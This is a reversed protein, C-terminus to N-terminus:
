VLENVDEIAIKALLDGRQELLEKIKDNSSWVSHCIRYLQEVDINNIDVSYNIGIVELFGAIKPDYEIAVFPVNNLVSFILSHLRVGLLFDLEKYISLVQLPTEVESLIIDAKYNDENWRSIVKEKLKKSIAKDQNVHFPIIIINADIEAAFKSLSEAFNDIYENDGWPRVSVGILPKRSKTTKIKIDSNTYDGALEKLIFVPDVSLKLQNSDIGWDVLLEKSKSDRVSIYNARNMVKKILWRYFKGKVPGIGQAYFVTKKCMLQAILVQGLYYPISKWGTLDQLLSGGGSVFYECCRIEKMISLINNRSISRIKYRDATLEPDASLATIGVKEDNSKLGATLSMLIAEDGINDFGYYGSLLYKSM